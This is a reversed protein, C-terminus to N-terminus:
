PQRFKQSISVTNDPNAPNHFSQTWALVEEHRMPEGVFYGQANDVGIDKLIDQTEQNEVGEAVVSLGLNHALQVISKVINTDEENSALDFVFSKDIKLESVPTKKLQSMSSYGTGFDDISLRIGMRKLLKLAKIAEVPDAMMASETIEFTIKNSDMDFEALKDSVYNPLTMDALDLASINVSIGIDLGADLWERVHSLSKQVIWRTLELIKGSKEALPIFQDPDIIGHTPHEWRVLCEFSSISNKELDLKPQYFLRMQEQLLAEHLESMLNLKFLSLHNLDASYYIHSSVSDKCKNLAIDAFQMIQQAHSGHEPYMAIGLSVNIYLEIDNVLFPESFAAEYQNITTALQTKGQDTALVGFEDGSIHCCINGKSGISAIRQSISVLLHDGFEYGLTDNIEKFANIDILIVALNTDLESQIHDEIQQIFHTRNPLNTLSNYYALHYIRQERAEINEQMSGIALSLEEIEVTDIDPLTNKYFGSKIQKAVEVLNYLPTTISKYFYFSAILGLVISALLTYILRNSLTDFNLFASNHDIFFAYDFNPDNMLKFRYSVQETGDSSEDKWNLGDNTKSAQTPLIRTKFGTLSRIENEFIETLNRGVVLFGNLSYEPSIFPMPKVMYMADGMSAIKMDGNKLISNGNSLGATHTGLILEFEEDYVQVFDVMSGDLENDIVKKILSIDELSNGQTDRKKNFERILIQLYRDMLDNENILKYQLVEKAYQFRQVLQNESHKYTAQLTSITVLMGLNLMLVSFSIMLKSHLSLKKKPIWSKPPSGETTM